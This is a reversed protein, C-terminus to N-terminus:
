ICGVRATRHRQRDHLERNAAGDAKRKRKRALDDVRVSNRRRQRFNEIRPYKRASYGEGQLNDALTVRGRRLSRDEEGRLRYKGCKESHEQKALPQRRAPEDTACQDKGRDQSD